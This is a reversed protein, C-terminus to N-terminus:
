RRGRRRLAAAVLLVALSAPGGAGCGCAVRYRGPGAGTGGGSGTGGDAVALWLRERPRIAGWPAERVFRSYALRVGPGEPALVPRQWVLGEPVLQFPRDDLPSLAADLRAGWVGDWGARPWFTWALLAEADRAALSLGVLAGGDFSTSWGPTVQGSSSVRRTSVEGGTSWAVVLEDGRAIAALEQIQAGGDLVLLPQASELGTDARIRWLRVEASGNPAALVSWGAGGFATTVRDFRDLPLSSPATFGGDPFVFAYGGSGDAHSLVALARDAGTAMSFLASGSFAPSPEQLLAGDADLFAFRSGTGDSWALLHGAAFPVLLMGGGSASQGGDRFVGLVPPAAAGGDRYLVKGNLGVLSESWLLLTSSAGASGVLPLVSPGSTSLRTGPAPAGGDLLLFAVVGTPVAPSGGEDIVALADTGRAAVADNCYPVGSGAPRLVLPPGRETGENGLQLLVRAGGATAPVLHRGAFAGWGTAQAGHAAEPGPPGPATWGVGSLANSSRDNVVALADSGFSLSALGRSSGALAMSAPPSDLLAGTQSVRSFHLHPQGGDLTTWAVTAGGDAPGLAYTDIQALEFLEIGGPDLVTGDRAIRALKLHRRDNARDRVVWTLVYQTGDFVLRLYDASQQSDPPHTSVPVGCTTVITGDALVRTASVGGAGGYHGWAVLYDTGDSAVVPSNTGRPDLCVFLGWPDLAAGDPGIRGAVVGYSFYHRNDWWTALYGSASAAVDVCMQEDRAEALGTAGLDREPGLGTDGATLGVLVGTVLALQM